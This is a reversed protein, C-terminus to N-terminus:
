GQKKQCEICLIKKFKSHSFQAVNEAVQKTCITCTYLKPKSGEQPKNSINNVPKDKEHKNTSDSDKNDDICFLGNLAYKRAYSSVSGTVQSLDMGKKAEDERALGNTFVKEGTEVDTVTATAKMYFRNGILEVEDSLQLTLKNDLLHPKVSELIDECSRYSYKGFSNFQSKPAKLKAQVNLLKEYVSM